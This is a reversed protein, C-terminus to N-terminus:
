VNGREVIWGAIWEGDWEGSAVGRCRLLKLNLGERDVILTGELRSCSEAM